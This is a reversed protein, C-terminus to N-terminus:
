EGSGSRLAALLDRWFPGESEVPAFDLRHLPGGQEAEIRDLDRRARLAPTLGEGAEVCGPAVGVLLVGGQPWVHAVAEAFREADLAIPEVDFPWAVFAGQGDCLIAGDYAVPRLEVPKAPEQLAFVVIFIGITALLVDM